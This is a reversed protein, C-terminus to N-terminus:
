FEEIIKIVEKLTEIRTKVIKKMITISKDPPQKELIELEAEARELLKKIEEILASRDLLDVGEDKFSVMKFVYGDVSRGEDEITVPYKEIRTDIGLNQAISNLNKAIYYAMKRDVEIFVEEGQLLLMLIESYPIRRRARLRLKKDKAPVVRYEDTRNSM